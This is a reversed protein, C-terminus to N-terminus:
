ESFIKICNRGSSKACYLAKDAKDVLEEPRAAPHEKLSSTGISVTVAKEHRDNKYPENECLIRIKEAMGEAGETDTQPLLILFEEGGYRFCCDSERTNIIIRSSFEKLVFDGFSHGFSDNVNKFNDLDLIIVSLDTDYRVARNFERPLVEDMYHRNYLGTLADFIAMKAMKKNARTIEQRIRYKELANTICTFLTEPNIGTKTLYDYAGAKIMRSAIIEDGKGTITIVPLDLAYTKLKSLFDLGTGDSLYFDLLVIDVKKQSILRIGEKISRARSINITKYCKLTERIMDFDEDSNEISLINIVQDFNIISAGGVYPKVDYYHISEIRKVIEAIERGSSEIQDLRQEIQERNDGLLRILEINGLLTTLPTNLEHATAGAMQMLVKLREEEIVSKQQEIIKQNSKRLEKNSNILMLKHRHLELFVSVKSILIDKELPKFLYDVAGSNYGKFLHKEEKNIATVFIIPIHKTDENSRILEATEFGDMGPMQVDLLILAFDNELLLELASDGSLAKIYEADVGSLIRELAILNEVKDDVLLIKQTQLEDM